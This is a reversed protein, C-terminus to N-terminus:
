RDIGTHTAMGFDAEEWQLWLDTWQMAWWGSVKVTSDWEM